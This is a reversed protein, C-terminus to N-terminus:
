LPHDEIERLTIYDRMAQPLPLEEDRRIGCHGLHQRIRIRCIQRLSHPTHMWDEFWEVAENEIPDEEIEERQHLFLMSQHEDRANRQRRTEAMWAYLPGLKCGALILLKALGVYCSSQASTYIYRDLHFMTGYKTIDKDM